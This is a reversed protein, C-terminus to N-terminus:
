YNANQDRLLPTSSGTAVRNEGDCRVFGRTTAFYCPSELIGEFKTHRMADLKKRLNTPTPTEMQAQRLRYRMEQLEKM